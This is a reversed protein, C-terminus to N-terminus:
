TWGGFFHIKVDVWTWGHWGGLVLKNYGDNKAISSHLIEKEDSNQEKTKFPSVLRPWGFGVLDVWMWGHGSM